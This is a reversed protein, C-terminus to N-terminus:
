DKRLAERELLPEIESERERHERMKGLGGVLMAERREVLTEMRAPDQDHRDARRVVYKLRGFQPRLDLLNAGSHRVCDGARAVQECRM